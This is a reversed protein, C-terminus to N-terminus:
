FMINQYHKSSSTNVLRGIFGVSNLGTAKGHHTKGLFLFLFARNEYIEFVVDGIKLDDFKTEIM